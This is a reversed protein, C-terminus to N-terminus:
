ALDFDGLFRILTSLIRGYEERYISEISFNM